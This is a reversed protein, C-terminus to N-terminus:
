RSTVLYRAQPLLGAENLVEVLSRRDVGRYVVLGGAPWRQSRAASPFLACTVSRFRARDRGDWGGGTALRCIPEGSAARVRRKAACSRECFAESIMSRPFERALSHRTLLRQAAYTM